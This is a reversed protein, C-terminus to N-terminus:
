YFSIPLFHVSPASDRYHRATLPEVTERGDTASLGEFPRLVGGGVVAYFLNCIQKYITNVYYVIVM